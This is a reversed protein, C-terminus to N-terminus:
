QVSLGQLEIQVSPGPGVLEDLSHCRGVEEPVIAPTDRPWWPFPLRFGLWHLCAERGPDRPSLPHFPPGKGARVWLRGGVVFKLCILVHCRTKIFHSCTGTRATDGVLPQPCLGYRHELFIIEFPKLLKDEYCLLVVGSSSSNQGKVCQRERPLRQSETQLALQGWNVKSKVKWGRSGRSQLSREQSLQMGKRLLVQKRQPLLGEGRWVGPETIQRCIVPFAGSRSGFVLCWLAKALTIVQPCAISWM